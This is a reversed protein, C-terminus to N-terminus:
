WQVYAYSKLKGRGHLFGLIPEITYSVVVIITGLVTTLILGFLSFSSYATSLIKQERRAM